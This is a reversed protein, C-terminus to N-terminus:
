LLKCQVLNIFANNSFYKNIVTIANLFANMLIKSYFNAMMISIALLANIRILDMANVVIKMANM